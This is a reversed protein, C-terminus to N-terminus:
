DDIYRQFGEKVINLYGRMAILHVREENQASKTQREVNKMLREIIDVNWVASMRDM